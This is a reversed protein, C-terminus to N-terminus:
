TVPAPMQGCEQALVQRGDVEVAVLKVNKGRTGVPPLKATAAPDLRPSQTM